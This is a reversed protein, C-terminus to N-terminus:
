GYMGGGMQELVMRYMEQEEIARLFEPDM